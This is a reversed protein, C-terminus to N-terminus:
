YGYDNHCKMHSFLYRYIYIYIHTNHNGVNSEVRPVNPILRVNPFGCVAYLMWLCCGFQVNPFGCVVDLSFTLSVVVDM